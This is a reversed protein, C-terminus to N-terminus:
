GPPIGSQQPTSVVYFYINVEIHDKHTLIQIFFCVAFLVNTKQNEAPYTLIQIQPTRGTPNEFM